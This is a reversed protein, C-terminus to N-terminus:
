RKGFEQSYAERLLWWCKKKWPLQWVLVIITSQPLREQIRTVALWLELTQYARPGNIFHTGGLLFKATQLLIMNLLGNRVTKWQQQIKFYNKNILLYLMESCEPICYIDRRDKPSGTSWIDVAWTRCKRSSYVNRLLINQMDSIWLKFVWRCTDRGTPSHQFQILKLTKGLHICEMILGLDGKWYVAWSQM